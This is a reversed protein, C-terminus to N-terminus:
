EGGPATDWIRVKGDKGAAAFHKGDPSFAVEFFGGTPSDLAVLEKGTATEWVLVKGEPQVFYLLGRGRKLQAATLRMGAPGRETSQGGASVIHKGDGSFAASSPFDRHGGLVASQRGATVDWVRVVLDDGTTVLRKGDPSFAVSWVHNTHHGLTRVAAGSAADWLRVTNDLGASALLRGDPSFAVGWVERAHGKLTRSEKGSAIDWIRVVRDFGASALRKGDPSFAVAYVGGTPSPLTLLPNGTTADWVLVEGAITGEFRSGTASAMLRGDPSYAVAWVERSHAMLTHLLAGTNTDWIKVTYDWSASALEHHRPRFALGTVAEEHGNITLPPMLGPDPRVVERRYAPDWVRVEGEDTASVLRRGDPSFAVRMVGRQHGSLTLAEQGTVPDWVKVSRDDSGTALRM